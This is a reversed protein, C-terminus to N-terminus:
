VEKYYLNYYEKALQKFLKKNEKINTEILMIDKLSKYEQIIDSNSNSKLLLFEYKSIFNGKLVVVINTFFYILIAGIRSIFYLISFLNPFVFLKSIICIINIIMLICYITNLSVKLKSTFYNDNIFDITGMKFFAIICILGLMVVMLFQMVLYIYFIIYPIKLFNLGLLLIFTEVILGEILSKYEKWQFKGLIQM